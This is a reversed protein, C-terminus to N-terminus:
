RSRSRRFAVQIRGAMVEAVAEQVGKYPIHVLDIQAQAKLYEGVLHTAAGVGASGYNLKGPQQKAMAILEGLSKIGLEPSTVIVSPSSGVLAVGAIDRLTDYPLKAYLTPNVAHSSSVFQLTYGDAPAALMAQTALIGGSGPKNEVIVSQGLRQTLREAYIRALVDTLAGPSFPVLIKVPKAPFKADQSWAAGAALTLVALLAMKFSRM